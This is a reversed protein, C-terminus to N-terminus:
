RLSRSSIARASRWAPPSRARAPSPRRATASARLLRPNIWEARADARRSALEPRRDRAARAPVSIIDAQRNEGDPCPSAEICCPRSRRRASARADTRADVWTHPRPAVTRLLGTNPLTRTKSEYRTFSHDRSADVLRARPRGATSNGAMGELGPAPAASLDRYAANRPAQLTSTLGLFRLIEPFFANAPDGEKRERRAPVRGQGPPGPRSPSIEGHSLLRKM